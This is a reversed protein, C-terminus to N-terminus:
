NLKLIPMLVARVRYKEVQDKLVKHRHMIAAMNDEELARLVRNVEAVMEMLQAFREPAAEKELYLSLEHLAPERGVKSICEKVTRKIAVPQDTLEKVRLLLRGVLVEGEVGLIGAYKVVNAREQEALIPKGAALAERIWKIKDLKKQNSRVIKSGGQM